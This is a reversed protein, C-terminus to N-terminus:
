KVKDIPMLGCIKRHHKGSSSCNNDLLKQNKQIAEKSDSPSLSWADVSTKTEPNGGEQAGLRPYKLCFSFRTEHNIPHRTPRCEEKKKSEKQAKSNNM